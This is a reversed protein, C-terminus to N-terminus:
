NATGRSASGAGSAATAACRAIQRLAARLSAGEAALAFLVVGVAVWPAEIADHLDLKRMGEYISLLGGLSFLLLAVVFSWFYTARGHGLPHHASPPTRAQWRGYLLLAENGSDALSHFAEALLAGSGTFLAGAVKAAAIALNTGLAWLISRLTDPPSTTSHSM